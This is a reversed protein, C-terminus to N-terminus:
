IEKEIKTDTQRLRGIRRGQRGIKKFLIPSIFSFYFNQLFNEVIPLLLKTENFDRTKKSLLCIMEFMEQVHPYNSVHRFHFFQEPVFDEELVSEFVFSVYEYLDIKLFYEPFANVNDFFCKLIKLEKNSWLFSNEKISFIQKNFKLRPM